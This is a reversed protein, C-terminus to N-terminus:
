RLSAAAVAALGHVNEGQAAPSGAAGSRISDEGGQAARSAGAPEPVEDDNQAGAPQGADYATLYGTLLESFLTRTRAEASLWCVLPRHWHVLRAGMRMAPYHFRYGFTGGREVEGLAGRIEEETASQGDLLLRHDGTWIQSNRAMPKGYLGVDDPATSFLVRLLHEEPGGAALEDEWRHTRRYTSRVPGLNEAPLPHEPRPVHLWGSQPVRLGYPGEHREVLHLLPIQIATWLQRRLELFGKVGWFLLSGPFPLLHLKGSFYAQKVTLPLSTFPAFSLLYRVGELSLSQDWHFPRTWAPLLSSEPDGKISLIRFGARHLDAERDVREAYALNLLTQFFRPGAPEMSKWFARGPGQESAGLLTWRVRGKDDQTLSLALPLLSVFREHTLAGSNEALDSPWYPNDALASKSLREAPRGRALHLLSDTVQDAISQFGPRLEVLEELESVPWLGQRVGSFFGDARGRYPKCGIRVPPMFESYARIPYSEAGKFSCDGAITRWDRIEM